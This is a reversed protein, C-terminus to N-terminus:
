RLGASRRGSGYRTRRRDSWMTGLPISDADEAPPEALNFFSCQNIEAPGYVNSFRANPLARMLMRLQNMPFVEGGFKVWRLSSLDRQEIVGRESIQVLATPVSYWITIRDHEIIETLRAPFPRDRDHIMSVAAGALPASLMEFTSQDFHLPPFGSIVDESTVAYTDVSRSAYAYGSAHSHLIGKPRGSSGSTYVVYAPDDEAISPPSFPHGGTVPEIGVVAEFDRDYEELEAVRAAFEPETYLFRLDCDDIISKLQIPPASADLPVAVGGARLIAHFAVATEVSKRLLIGSRRVLSFVRRSCSAPPM